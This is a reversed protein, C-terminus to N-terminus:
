MDLYMNGDMILRASRDVYISKGNEDSRLNATMIGTSHRIRLGKATDKGETLRAIISGEINAATAACCATTAMYAPNMKGDTFMRSAIDADADDAAVKAVWGAKPLTPAEKKATEISTALGCKVAAWDRIYDMKKLVEDKNALAQFQAPSENGKVGLDEADIFVYPSTADVLSVRATTGDPLAVVDAANGSPLVSPTFTGEPDCFELGMKSSPECIGPTVYDGCYNVKGDVVPVYMKLYKKTNTNYARVIFIGDKEPKVFGHEIAYPGVATSINGCLAKTTLGPKSVFVQYFTFAIDAGYPDGDHIVVVKSTNLTAGGLGDMQKTDPNGMARCLFKERAEIDAPLDKDYFVAAKSTGGRMISVPIKTYAM